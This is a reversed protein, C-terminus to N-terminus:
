LNKESGTQHGDDQIPLRCHRVADAKDYGLGNTHLYQTATSNHGNDGSSFNNGCPTFDRIKAHINMPKRTRGCPRSLAVNLALFALVAPIPSMSFLLLIIILNARSVFNEFIRTLDM